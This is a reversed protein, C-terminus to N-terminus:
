EDTSPAGPSPLARLAALLAKLKLRTEVFESAPDSDRVIGGGAYLSISKGGSGSAEHVLGSRLAVAFEGNGADDFSGVPSAYWGRADPEHEVIFRVAEAVPFGGVAPTPHLRSVLGLVHLPAKLRGRVPTRLHLLHRLTRVEPADPYELTECLPALQHVIERLVPEHEAREKSSALLELRGADGIRNSGALAETDISLGNRRVLREPSAGLFTAGSLRFAFRTCSPQSAALEALVDAVDVSGAFTLTTKRAAVVKEFDGSVIRERISEVLDKWEGESMGSEALVSRPEGAARVGNRAAAARLAHLVAEVEATLRKQAEASGSQDSQVCLSLFAGDATRAYRIRPLLFHADGFREWPAASAAGANFAFGGFLRPPPAEDGLTRIELLPWLAAAQATVDDFRAAGTGDIVVAAGIGAFGAGDPPDWLVADEGPAYELLTELPAHPAPVTIVVLAGEARPAALASQVFEAVLDQPPAKPALRAPEAHSTM